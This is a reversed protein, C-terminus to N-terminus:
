IQTKCSQQEELRSCAPCEGFQACFMPVAKKDNCTYRAPIFMNVFSETSPTSAATIDASMRLLVRYDTATLHGLFQTANLTHRSKLNSHHYGTLILINLTGLTPFVSLQWGRVPCTISILTLSPYVEQFCKVNKTLVEHIQITNM